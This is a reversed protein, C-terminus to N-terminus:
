NRYQSKVSGWTSVETPTTHCDAPLGPSPMCGTAVPPSTGTYPNLADFLVWAGTGNPLRGVSRDDKVENTVYAYSDVVTTDAGAVRYLYVTDGSNNLSLGFASVGNAQQWAVVASGYFVRVEGPALTGSLAFRWDTGASEDTIRYAGLDVPTDGVNTIELWEDAKSDVAGSGDWDSNPDALIENLQIQAAGMPAFGALVFCTLFLFAVYRMMKM